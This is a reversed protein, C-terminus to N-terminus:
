VAVMHSFYQPTLCWLGSIQQHATGWRKVTLAMGKNIIEYICTSVYAAKM